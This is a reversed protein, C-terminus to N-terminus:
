IYILEANCYNALFHLESRAKRNSICPWGHVNRWARNNKESFEAMPAKGWTSWDIELVTRVRDSMDNRVEKLVRLHSYLEMQLDIDVDVM